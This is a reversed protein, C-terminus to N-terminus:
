IGHCVYLNMRLNQLHLQGLFLDVVNGSVLFTASARVSDDDEVIIIYSGHKKPIVVKDRKYKFALLFENDLIKESFFLYFEM